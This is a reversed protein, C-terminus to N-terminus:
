RGCWRGPLWRWGGSSCFVSGPAAFATRNNGCPKKGGPERSGVPPADGRRYFLSIYMAIMGALSLIAAMGPIMENHM